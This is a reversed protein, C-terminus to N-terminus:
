FRGEYSVTDFIVGTKVKKKKGTLIDEEPTKKVGIFIDILFGALALLPMALVTLGLEGGSMMNIVTYAISSLLLLLAFMHFRKVGSSKKGTLKFEVGFMKFETTSLSHNAMVILWVAMVFQLVIKILENASIVTSEDNLVGLLFTNAISIEFFAKIAAFVICIQLLNRFFAASRGCERKLEIIDRISEDYAFLSFKGGMVGCLFHFFLGIGLVLYASPLIAINEVGCILGILFHFIVIASLSGSYVREVKKLAYFNKNFGADQNMKESFVNGIKMVIRIINAVLAILMIAYLLVGLLSLAESLGVEKWSFINWCTTAGLQVTDSSNGMRKIEMVPFLAAVVALLVTAVLYIAGVIKMKRHATRIKKGLALAKANIIEM